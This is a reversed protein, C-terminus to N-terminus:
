AQSDDELTAQMQSLYAEMAKLQSELPSLLLAELQVRFMGRLDEPTAALAQDVKGRNEELLERQNEVEQQFHIMKEVTVSPTKRAEQSAAEGREMETIPLALYDYLADTLKRLAARREDTDVIQRPASPAPFSFLQGNPFMGTIRYWGSSEGGDSRSPSGSVTDASRFSSRCFRYAGSRRCGPITCKHANQWHPECFGM